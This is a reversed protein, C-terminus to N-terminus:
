KPSQSSALYPRRAIRLLVRMWGFARTGILRALWRAIKKRYAAAPGGWTHQYHHVAVTTGDRHDQFNVYDLPSLVRMPHCAVGDALLQKEGSPVLGSDIALRTLVAVNTTTDLTGDPKVFARDRYQDMYRRMLPHGARFGMTSTAVSNGHEFGIFGEASMLPDLRGVLEVDTDLYVGGHDFLAQGRAYDSVFAFKGQQYAQRVYLCCGVDFNDENWEIFKFDPHLRRWGDIFRVADAPKPGRGFWCYHILKPIM